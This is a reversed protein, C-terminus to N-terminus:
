RRRMATEDIAFQPHHHPKNAGIADNRAGVFTFVAPIRRAYYAFDEGGMVPPQAVVNGAGVTAEAAPRVLDAMSSDNILSPSGCKYTVTATAGHAEAHRTAIRTLDHELLHRVDDSLARTTGTLTAEASIVNFTKGARFTGFTLVAAELPDVRRSVVTQLEGVMSAAIVLADITQHPFAGHGGSGTVAIAFEDMSAMVPGGRV